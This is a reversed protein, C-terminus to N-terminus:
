SPMVAAPGRASAASSTAIANVGEASPPAAGAGDREGWYYRDTALLLEAVIQLDGDGAMRIALAAGGTQVETSSTM